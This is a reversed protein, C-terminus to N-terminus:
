IDKGKEWFEYILYDWPGRLIWSERVEECPLYIIVIKKIQYM